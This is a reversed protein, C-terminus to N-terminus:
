EIVESSWEKTTDECLCKAKLNKCYKETYIGDSDEKYKKTAIKIAEKESNAIVYVRLYSFGCYGNIVEYLKM